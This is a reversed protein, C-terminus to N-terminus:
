QMKIKSNKIKAKIEYRKCLADVIIRDSDKTLPGLMIDIINLSNTNIKMDIYDDIPEHNDVYEQAEMTLPKPIDIPLRFRWEEEFSWDDSKDIGVTSLYPWSLRNKSDVIVADPVNESGKIYNVPDPGYMKCIGCDTIENNMLCKVDCRTYIVKACNHKRNGQIGCNERYMEETQFLNHPSIRLRVGRLDTYMNWMPITDKENATWSSSFVFKEIGRIDKVRGELPDNLNSLKTFRITKYELIYALTSITTYHYLQSPINACM